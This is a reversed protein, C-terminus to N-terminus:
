DPDIYLADVDGTMDHISGDWYVITGFTYSSNSSTMIVSWIFVDEQSTNILLM